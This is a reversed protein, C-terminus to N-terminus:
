GKHGQGPAPATLWLLKGAGKRPGWVLANQGFLRGLALAARRGGRPFLVLFGPEVPWDGRDARNEAPWWRWGAGRGRRALRAALATLRAQNAQPTLRQSGPNCPTIVAWANMGLRGMLAALRPACHGLRLDLPGQPLWVRYTTATYAAELAARSPTGAKSRPAPPLCPGRGRPFSPQSPASTPRSM